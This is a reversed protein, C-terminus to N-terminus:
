SLIDKNFSHFFLHVTEETIEWTREYHMFRPSLLKLPEPAEKAVALSLQTGSLQTQWSVPKWFCVANCYGNNQLLFFIQLFILFVTKAQSDSVPIRYVPWSSDTHGRQAETKQNETFRIISKSRLPYTEPGLCSFLLSHLHSQTARLGVPKETGRGDRGVGM